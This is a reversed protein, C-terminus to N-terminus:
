PMATVAVMAMLAFRTLGFNKRLVSYILALGVVFLLFGTGLFLLVGVPAALNVNTYM